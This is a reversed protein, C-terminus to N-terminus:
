EQPFLMVIVSLYTPSILWFKMKKTEVIMPIKKNTTMTNITQVMFFVLILWTLSFGALWGV